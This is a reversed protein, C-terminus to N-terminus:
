GPSEDALRGLTLAVRLTYSDRAETPSYGTVDTVRRLRYRVTNPHIFLLRATTEVSGGNELFAAVTELIPPGAAVLPAYLERCLQEAATPDGSLAREPLLEVAPVPRPADPWGPAAALGALAAGASSTASVLDPVTAGVVVPGPGYQGTVAAVAGELDARKGRLGLVVVLRDSQVGTLVDAGASHAARRVAEVVSESDGDPPHGAVVVVQDTDTWGLAAARSGVAEAGDARLLADVVLSELRADWAGREEAAHAYLGAAAFAIERSYRLVSERVAPVDAPDVIDEVQSEVLEVIRRVLEVTQGLSVSRVLERPATGFVEATTGARSDPSRYWAVFAAIGAQAVLGLWSREQASMARYWPLDRDLDAVVKKALPGIARELRRVTAPRPGDQAGM